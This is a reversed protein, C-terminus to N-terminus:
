GRLNPNLTGNKKDRSMRNIIDTLCTQAGYVDYIMDIARQSSHGLDVLKKIVGLM